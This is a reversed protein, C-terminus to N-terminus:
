SMSEYKACTRGKTEGVEERQEDREGEKTKGGGEKGNKREGKWKRENLAILVQSEVM